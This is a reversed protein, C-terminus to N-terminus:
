DLLHISYVFASKYAQLGYFDLYFLNLREIMDSKVSMDMQLQNRNIKLSTTNQVVCNNGSQLVVKM